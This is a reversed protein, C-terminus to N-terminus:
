LQAKQFNPILYNYMALPHQSIKIIPTTTKKDGFKNQLDSLKLPRENKILDIVAQSLDSERNQTAALHLLGVIFKCADKDNMTRNVHEWIFRYNDDPFLADRLRFGRFAGPKKVLSSILHRYDVVHKRKGPAPNHARVLTLTQKSGLYCELRDSYIRVYLREGILRSPVSYTVRKLQFTSTSSIVVVAEKYDVAKTSPLPQLVVREAELNKCNYRNHQKVVETIFNRYEELSIFDNSGRVILSQFIRRKIHGHSSEVAGNEHSEGPNIRTARMGFHEAFARYRDTLDDSANRNLNKFSASLSDTRHTKPSGGLFFLAEQLGQAFAEYPEGSGEFVQIYNFGSYVLRFHYFIHVLPEKNITVKIADPHTFDSIGLAGPEHLQRFMIEKNPGSLARWEKIKRQLTRLRANPYKDPHKKQLVQLLFTAQFVGQELLPVIEKGWVDEFPDERTVWDHPRGVQHKKKDIRRATEESFGAKAAAILQTCGENRNDMYLVKQKTTIVKQYTREM